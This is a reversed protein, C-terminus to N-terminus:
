SVQCPFISAHRKAKPVPDARPLALGTAANYMSCSWCSFMCAKCTIGILWLSCPSTMAAPMQIHTPGTSKVRRMSHSNLNAGLFCKHHLSRDNAEHQLCSLSHSLYIRHLCMPLWNYHLEWDAQVMNPSKRGRM